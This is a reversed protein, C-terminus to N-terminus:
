RTAGLPRPGAARYRTRIVLDTEPGRVHWRVEVGRGARRIVWAHYRDPGCPHPADAEVEWSGAGVGDGARGGVGSLDFRVLATPHAPGFREHSLHLFPGEARWRLISWSRGVAGPLRPRVRVWEERWVVEHASPRDAGIAIRVTRVAGARRDHILSVARTASALIDFV